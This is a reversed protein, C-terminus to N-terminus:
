PSGGDYQRERREVHSRFEAEFRDWDWDTPKLPRVGTRRRLPRLRRLNALFGATGFSALLGLLLVATASMVNPQRSKWRRRRAAVM